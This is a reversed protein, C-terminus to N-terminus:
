NLHSPSDIFLRTGPPDPELARGLQGPEEASFIVIQMEPLQQILRLSEKVKSLMGGTVDTFESGQLSEIIHPLSHPTIQRVLRTCKPYDAWVGAEQGALLLLAPRLQEALHAFLIETSLITGGRQQDFAVDGYVVPLLNAKLAKHIPRMEWTEPKGDRAVVSASAPLAIAPLGAQHLAQMVLRNLSSAAYWVEAFGHWDAPTSVANQTGHKQAVQHGFSGSGHGLLFQTEPHAQRLAALEHALREIIELRPSFALDKNTILSGGLKIFVLHKHLMTM